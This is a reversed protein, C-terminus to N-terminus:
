LITFSTKEKKEVNQLFMQDFHINLNRFLSFSPYKYPKKVKFGQFQECIIGSHVCSFNWIFFLRILTIKQPAFNQFVDFNSVM